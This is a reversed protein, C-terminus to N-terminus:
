SVELIGSMHNEIMGFQPPEWIASNWVLPVRGTSVCFQLVSLVTLVTFHIPPIRTLPQQQWSKKM